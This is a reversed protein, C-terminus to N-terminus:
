QCFPSISPLLSQSSLLIEPFTHGGESHCHHNFAAIFIFNLGFSLHFSECVLTSFLTEAMVIPFCITQVSTMFPCAGWASQGRRSRRMLPPFFLCLRFPLFFQHFWLNAAPTVERVILPPACFYYSQSPFRSRVFLLLSCLQVSVM